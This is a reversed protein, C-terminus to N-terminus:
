PQDPPQAQEPVPTPPLDSVQNPEPDSLLAVSAIIVGLGSFGIVLDVFESLTARPDFLSRGYFVPFLAWVLGILGLARRARVRHTRREEDSELQRMKRVETAAWVSLGVSVALGVGIYIPLPIM